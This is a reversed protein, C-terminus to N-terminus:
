KIFKPEGLNSSDKEILLANPDGLSSFRKEILSVKPERLTLIFTKELNIILKLFSVYSFFAGQACVFSLNHNNM